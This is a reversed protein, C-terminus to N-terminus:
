SVCPWSRASAAAAPESLQFFFRIRRVGTWALGDAARVSRGARRVRRKCSATASSRGWLSVSFARSHGCGLRRCVHRDDFRCLRHGHHRAAYDRVDVRALFAPIGEVMPSSGLILLLATRGAVANITSTCSPRRAKLRTGTRQTTSTGLARTADRRRASPCARAGHAFARPEPRGAARALRWLCDVTRLGAARSRAAISVDHAYRVALAAGVGWPTRGVVTHHHRPRRRGGGRRSGDAFRVLRASSGARRDTGLPRTRAHASRRRRRRTRSSCGGTM